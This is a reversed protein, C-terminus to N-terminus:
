ATPPTEHPRATTQTVTYQTDTRAMEVDGAPASHMQAVQGHLKGLEIYRTRKEEDYGPSKPAPLWYGLIGTLIPIYVEPQRGRGTEIMCYLSTMLSITVQMAFMASTSSLICLHEQWRPRGRTSSGQTEMAVHM